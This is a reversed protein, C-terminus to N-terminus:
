ISSLYSRENIRLDIFCILSFDIIVGVQDMDNLEQFEELSGPLRSREKPIGEMFDETNHRISSNCQAVNSKGTARTVSSEDSTSHMVSTKQHSSLLDEEIEEVQCSVNEQTSNIDVVADVSTNENNNIAAIKSSAVIENATSDVNDSELLSQAKDIQDGTHTSHQQTDVSHNPSKDSAELSKVLEQFTPLEISLPNGRVPKSQSSSTGEASRTPSYSVPFM